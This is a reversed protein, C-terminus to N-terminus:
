TPFYNESKSHHYSECKSSQGWIPYLTELNVVENFNDISRAKINMNEKLLNDM